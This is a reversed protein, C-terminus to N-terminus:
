SDEAKRYTILASGPRDPIAVVLGENMLEAGVAKRSSGADMDKVVYSAGLQLGRLNLRASEYSSDERRFAQVIGEALDPRDFQWAIWVDKEVSYRTLPYYDGYFCHRISRYENILRRALAYDFDGDSYDDRDTWMLVLAPSYGSRFTYASLPRLWPANARCAGGSLPVWFSLGYTQGQVGAPDGDPIEMGNYDTRWLNVSRRITELDIKMGGASCNDIILHPHRELLADWFAYSGETHRIQNMGIRDPGSDAPYSPSGDQRYIDVGAESILESNREIMWRNADPNGHDIAADGILWEPHEAGVEVGPIARNPWVWLLFKMARGHAADSVERLGNPYYEANTVRNAAAIWWDQGTTGSWGADIWFCDIALENEAYWNIRAIQEEAKKAGWSMACLPAKVLEGGPRPSYHELLLRRWANHGDLRDGKWFLLLMRPSRIREGPHLVLHTCDMGAQVNLAHGADRVFEAVWLGSWGIAVIITQDAVQVDFFPLAENSSTSNSCSYLRLRSDPEMRDSLPEFDVIEHRCGRAHHVVFEKDAGRTFSMDLAQVDELIETDKDGNNQFHIIWEVAPYDTYEIVECQVELGTDPDSCRVIHRTRSEDVKESSRDIKWTELLDPSSRGGYKFSFPFVSADPRFWAGPGNGSVNNADGGCTRPSRFSAVMWDKSTAAEQGSSDPAVAKGSVLSIAMATLLVAINWPSV